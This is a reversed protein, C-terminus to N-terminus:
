VLDNYDDMSLIRVVNDCSSLERIEQGNKFYFFSDEGDAYCSFLGPIIQNSMQKTKKLTPEKEIKNRFIKIREASENPPEVKICFQDYVSWDNNHYFYVLDNYDDMSLIRVVNTVFHYNELKKVTKLTISRIRVM